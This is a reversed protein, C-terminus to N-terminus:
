RGNKSYEVFAGHSKGIEFHVESAILGTPYYTTRSVLLGSEYNEVTSTVGDKYKSKVEWYIARCQRIRQNNM